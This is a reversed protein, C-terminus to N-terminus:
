LDCCPEVKDRKLLCRAHANHFAVPFDRITRFNTIIVLGEQTLLSFPPGVQDWANKAAVTFVPFLFRSSKIAHLHPEHHVYKRRHNLHHAYNIVNQFPKKAIIYNGWIVRSKPTYICAYNSTFINYRLLDLKKSYQPM